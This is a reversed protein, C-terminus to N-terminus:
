ADATEEFLACTADTLAPCDTIEQTAWFPLGHVAHLRVTVGQIRWDTVQKVAAAGPPRGPAPLVDFWDVPIKVPPVASADAHDIASGLEPAVMYGGIETPEGGLLAERLQTTGTRGATEGDLLAGALRLRLLQTLFAAGRVVPQWLLLRAVPLTARAAYDLALLAGLRLGWLGVPCGLKEALWAHGLALDDQWGDWRADAFEGASDGCGYLDLQLVGIGRQALARAQRAALNRTRNMEDGFPAVYLLAGRCAGAPAHYLCFRAGSPTDLFFPQAPAPKM